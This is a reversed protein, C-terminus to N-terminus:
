KKRGPTTPRLVTVVQGGEVKRPKLWSGSSQVSWEGVWSSERTSPKVTWVREFAVGASAMGDIVLDRIWVLVEGAQVQEVPVSVVNLDEFEISNPDYTTGLKIGGAKLADFGTTAKMRGVGLGSALNDNFADVQSKAEESLTDTEVNLIEGAGPLILWLDEDATCILIAGTEHDREITAGQHHTFRTRSM